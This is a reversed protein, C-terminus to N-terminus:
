RRFGREGVSGSSMQALVQKSNRSLERLEDLDHDVGAAIV